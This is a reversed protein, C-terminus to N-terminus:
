GFRVTLYGAKATLTHVVVVESSASGKAMRDVMFSAKDSKELLMLEFQGAGQLADGAQRLQVTGLAQKNKAILCGSSGKWVLSNTREKTSM